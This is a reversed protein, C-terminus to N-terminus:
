TLCLFSFRLTFGRSGMGFFASPAGRIYHLVKLLFVFVFAILSLLFHLQPLLFQLRANLLLLLLIVHHFLEHFLLM